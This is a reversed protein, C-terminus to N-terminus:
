LLPQQYYAAQHQQHTPQAPASMQYSTPPLGANANQYSSIDMAVGMQPPYAGPAGPTQNVYAGNMPGSCSHVIDCNILFTVELWLKIKM